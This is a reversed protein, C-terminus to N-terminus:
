ELVEKAKRLKNEWFDQQVSTNLNGATLWIKLSKRERIVQKRLSFSRMSTCINSAETEYVNKEVKM